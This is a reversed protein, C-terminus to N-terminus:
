YDFYYDGHDEEYWYEPDKLAQGFMNYWQGCEPCPTDGDLHVEGGCSCKGVAPETYTWSHKVVGEDIYEEPHSVCYEYNKGWCNYNEDPIVNGKADCPFGYGCGPECDVRQFDRSFGVREKRERKSIIKVIHSM